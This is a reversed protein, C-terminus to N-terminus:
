CPSIVAYGFKWLQIAVEEAARINHLVQRISNARYPGSVYAIRM